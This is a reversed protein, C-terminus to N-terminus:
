SALSGPRPQAPKPEGGQERAIRAVLQGYRLMSSRPWVQETPYAAAFAAAGDPLAVDDRKSDTHIHVDPPCRSPDDLTGARVFYVHDGVQPLLHYRSWLAVHCHTCRTITQGRGSPTSAMVDYVDGSILEVSPAEVLANVAYAGGTQRQCLTCHCGHVILPRAHVRYRVRACCCGGDMPEVKKALAADEREDLSPDKHRM